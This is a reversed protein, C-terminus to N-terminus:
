PAQAIQSVPDRQGMGIIPLTGTPLMTTPLVGNWREAQVLNVLAPNDRLAQGRANIAEAEANGRLRIADAEAQAALRVSDATAQAQTTIIDAQVRERELNQRVKQVEVEALMRQEISQDYAASFDLNEIQANEITIPGQVASQLSAQFETNLRERQQIAAVANFQGFIERAETMVQPNVLREVLAEESGYQEYIEAIAGANLRYNVSVVLDAPQNDSSYASLPPYKAIHSQVSITKVGDIFPMKFGLGPDAVAVIEGNRLVVGREGQDVTYFSGFLAPIGLLFVIAATVGLKIMTSLQM